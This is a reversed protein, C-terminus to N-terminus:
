KKLVINMAFDINKEKAFNSIPLNVSAFATNSKLQREFETLSERNDARGQIAVTIDEGVKGYSIEKLTIAKSKNEFGHFIEYVSQTKEAIQLSRAKDKADRLRITIDDNPNAANTIEKISELDLSVSTERVRSLLYSPFLLIFSVILIISIVFFVVSIHRLSYETNLNKQENKPLLNSM